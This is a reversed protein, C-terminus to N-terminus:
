CFLNNDEALQNDVSLSLLKRHFDQGTACLKPSAPMVDSAQGALIDGTKRMMIVLDMNLTRNVGWLRLSQLQNVKM